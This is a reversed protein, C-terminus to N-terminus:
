RQSVAYARGISLFREVVLFKFHFSTIKVVTKITRSSVLYCKTWFSFGTGTPTREIGNVLSSDHGHAM